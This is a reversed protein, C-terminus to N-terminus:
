RGRRLWGMMGGRSRTELQMQHTRAVEELVERLKDPLSGIADSVAAAQALSRSLHEIEQRAGSFDRIADVTGNLRQLTEDLRFLRKTAPDIGKQIFTGLRM